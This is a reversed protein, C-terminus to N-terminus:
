AFPQQTSLRMDCHSAHRKGPACVSGSSEGMVDCRNHRHRDAASPTSCAGGTIGGGFGTSGAGTSGLVTGDVAQGTGMPTQSKQWANLGAGPLYSTNNM